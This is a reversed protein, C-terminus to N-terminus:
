PTRVKSHPHCITVPRGTLLTACAQRARPREFHFPTDGHTVRVM